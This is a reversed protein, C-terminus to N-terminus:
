IWARTFYYLIKASETALDLFVNWRRAFSTSRKGADPFPSPLVELGAKRFARHARFMHYDSTLLVKRGPSAALLRATALANQRTSNSQDELLISSAPVGQCVLFDRMAQVAGRGSLVAQRFTGGRWAHVAYVSRWYSYEGVMPGGGDSALVILIDGQPAHWPGALVRTWWNVLPTFTVTLLLLGLVALAARVHRFFARLM